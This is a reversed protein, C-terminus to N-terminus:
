AATRQGGAGEETAVGHPLQRVSRSLLSGAACVAFVVGAIVMTPELGIEDAVPGVLLMGLPVTAFSLLGAFSSVRSMM